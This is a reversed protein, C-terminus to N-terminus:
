EEIPEKTPPPDVPKGLSSPESDGVPLTQPDPGEVPEVADESSARKGRWKRYWIGFGDLLLMGGQLLLLHGWYYSFFYAWVFYYSCALTLLLTIWSLLPRKKFLAWGGITDWNTHRARGVGHIVAGVPDIAVMVGDGFGVLAKDGVSMMWEKQASKKPM